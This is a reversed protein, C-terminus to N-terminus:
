TLLDFWSTTPAGGQITVPAVPADPHVFKVDQLPFAGQWGAGSDGLGHIWVM